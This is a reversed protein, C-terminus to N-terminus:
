LFDNGPVCFEARIEVFVVLLFLVLENGAVVVTRRIERHVSLARKM